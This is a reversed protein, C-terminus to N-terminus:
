SNTIKSRHKIWVDNYVQIHKEVYREFSYENEVLNRGQKALKERLNDDVLLSNIAESLAQSNKAPVALGGYPANIVSPLSTGEFVVVPTECAMAEVAMLGFSEQISPMVFIDAASLGCILDDGDIWGTNVIHYESSLSSFSIGNEFILLTVAEKPKYLKLAELLYKMGKFKDRNIEMGRFAIVKNEIPIGLKIKSEIKPLPRFKEINIGFPITHCPLHNLLPSKKIRYEMWKSAVVLTIESQHFIWKKLKWHIFPIRHQFLSKARPYPCYGSCGNQWKMCDFSHECGGTMAWPDHLTWVVPKLKSIHPLSLISFNSFNHILHIHIVDAQKFFALNKIAIGGFGLLRDLGFRSSLKLLKDLICHLFPNGPPIKHVYNSNSKKEWVAMEVSHQADLAEQMYYGTFRGGALDTYNIHLIKM